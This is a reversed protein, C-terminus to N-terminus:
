SGYPFIFFKNPYELTKNYTKSKAEVPQIYGQALM